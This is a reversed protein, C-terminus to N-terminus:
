PKDSVNQSPLIVAWSNGWESSRPVDGRGPWSSLVGYLRGEKEAAIVEPDSKLSDPVYQMTSRRIVVSLQDTEFGDLGQTTTIGIVEVPGNREEKQVPVQKANPLKMAEDMPKVLDYGIKQPATTTYVGGDGEVPATKIAEIIASMDVKKFISGQGPKTHGRKIHGQAWDSLIVVNGGAQIKEDAEKIIFRRWNEFLKKM